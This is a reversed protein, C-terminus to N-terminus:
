EAAAEETEEEEAEGEEEDASAGKVTVGVVAFNEEFLAKVGDPLAVDEIQINDNIDLDSVEIVISEPIAMPLCIVELSDRYTEMIGGGVKVGVPTGTFELPVVVKIEKKLDVGFFDVHELQNKFPHHVMKWVLAPKAGEGEIDLQFVQTTGVNQYAKLLALEKVQVPVNDGDGNYFVGPTVGSRRLRRNPGKGLETRKQVALTLQEAM